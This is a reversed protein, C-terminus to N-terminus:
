NLFATLSAWYSPYKSLNNHGGGPIKTFSVKQQFVQNLYSSHAFPIVEDETGHIILIKRHLESKLITNDLNVKIAFAPIIHIIAKAMSVIDIYPTELILGEVKPLNKSTSFLASAIGTGLSRGHLYIPTNKYEGRIEKLM